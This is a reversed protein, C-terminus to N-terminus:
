RAYIFTTYDTAFLFLLSTKPCRKHIRASIVFVTVISETIEYVIRHQKNVRKSWCGSMDGRLAEPKGTGTSPHLAM